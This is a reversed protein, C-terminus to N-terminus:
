YSGIPKFVFKVYRFLFLSKINPSQFLQTHTHTIHEDTSIQTIDIEYYIYNCTPLWQRTNNTENSFTRISCHTHSTVM